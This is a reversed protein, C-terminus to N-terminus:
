AGEQGEDEVAVGIRWGVGFRDKVMAFRPSWFTKGRPYPRLQM